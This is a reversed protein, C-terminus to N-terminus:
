RKIVIGVADKNSVGPSACQVGSSSMGIALSVVAQVASASPAGGSYLNVQYWKNGAQGTAYLRQQPSKITPLPPVDIASKYPVTKLCTLTARVPASAPKLKVVLTKNSTSLAVAQGASNAAFVTTNTAAHAPLSFALSSALLAIALRTHM